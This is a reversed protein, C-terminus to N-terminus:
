SKKEDFTVRIVDKAFTSPVVGAVQSDVINFNGTSNNRGL